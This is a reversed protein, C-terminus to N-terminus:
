RKIVARARELVASSVKRTEGIRKQLAEGSLPGFEMRAQKLDALFDPDKIMDDFAQRLAAVRDPPAGPTTLLSRGTSSASAFISLIQREEPTRGLEILTPIGPLEAVRESALAVLINVKKELIWTPYATKLTSLSTFAGATEGREMALLMETHRYGSVISFKTGMVGNLALPYIVTGSAQGTAGLPVPFKTADSITKAGSSHWTIILDVGPAIRGIWNFDPIKYRVETGGFVDAIVNEQVPMGIVTGDAPAKEYLYNIARLGGAGQMNQVIINPTGPIFKRIHRAVMRTNLDYAGGPDAPVIMSITKGKYFEEVSQAGASSSSLILGLATWWVIVHWISGVRLLKLAHTRELYAAARWTHWFLSHDSLNSLALTEVPPANEAVDVAALSSCASNM